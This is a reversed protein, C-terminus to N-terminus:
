SGIEGGDAKTIAVVSPRPPMDPKFDPWRTSPTEFTSGQEAGPHQISLFLTKGDPTFAPGSCEAGRPSSFFCRTVGRQPGSTEAAYVSDCFDASHEQGDTAIWIRGKHDFALNDPSTIWGRDSVAGHYRAAHDANKPDGGVIFFEWRCETAAHDAKGNVLPPVIEIIHGFKNPARPNAANLQDSKRQHNNTCVIYIHGTQPNAEVDEPRDMPTAGLLDAARRLDIMVDGQNSFGNAPTLPDQGFIIPLWRMTGDNDFRAVYLTGHDLLDRNARPDQTDYRDRTVFRYVYEMPEDDGSYVAVRGDHSVATTACEHKCRGLATRKVPTSKPDYPDIEVIWGFRNAENPERNLNFRAFHRGWVGGGNIGLRKWSAAERGAVADGSFAYNFHEEATLITGWPTVGGACNSYTGLVRRGSVDARTSMRPNGAAPGSLRILTGRASIRRNYPSERVMQWSSGSRAIEVVSHGVSAMEIECQERTIMKALNAPTMGAFMLHAIAYEHNVCLLGRGSNNSGQPLPLYAVFDNNMGFQREQADASQQGPRFEPADAHLPDGWRLLPSVNYGPAVHHTEDRVRGSETFTLTTYAPSNGKTVPMACGLLGYLGSAAMGQLITRRSLRAAMVQAMPPEISTNSVPLATKLTKALRHM